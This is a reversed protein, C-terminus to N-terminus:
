VPKNDFSNIFILRLELIDKTSKKEFMNQLELNFLKFYFCKKKM